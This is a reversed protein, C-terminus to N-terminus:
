ELHEGRQKEGCLLQRRGVGRVEGFDHLHPLPFRKGFLDQHLRARLIRLLYLGQALHKPLPIMRLSARGNQQPFINQFPRPVRFEKSRGQFGM